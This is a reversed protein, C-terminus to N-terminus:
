PPRRWMDNCNENCYFDSCPLPKPEGMLYPNHIWPGPCGVGRHGIILTGEVLVQVSRNGRCICPTGWGREGSAAHVLGSRLLLKALERLDIVRYTAM